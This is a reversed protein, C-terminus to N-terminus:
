KTLIMTFPIIFVTFIYNYISIREMDILKKDIFNCYTEINNIKIIIKDYDTKTHHHCYRKIIKSKILHHLM